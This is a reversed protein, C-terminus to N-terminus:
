PTRIRILSGNAPSEAINFANGSMSGFTGWGIQYEYWFDQITNSNVNGSPDEVRVYIDFPANTTTSRTITLTSTIEATGIGTTQIAYIGGHSVPSADEYWIVDSIVTGSASVIYVTSRQEPSGNIYGTDSFPQTTITAGSAAEGSLEFDVGSGSPISFSQLVLEIDNGSPSTFIPM